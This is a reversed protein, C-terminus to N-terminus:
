GIIERIFVLYFILIFLGLFQLYFLAMFKKYKGFYFAIFSLLAGISLTFTLTNVVFLAMSELWNIEIFILLLYLLLGVIFGVRNINFLLRAMTKITKM